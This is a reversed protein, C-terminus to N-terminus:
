IKLKESYQVISEQPSRGECSVPMRYNLNSIQSTHLLMKWLIDDVCGGWYILTYFLFLFQIMGFSVIMATCVPVFDKTGETTM